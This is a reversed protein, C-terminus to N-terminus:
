PALLGAMYAGAAVMCFLTRVHNWRTWPVAYDSWVAEADKEEPTVDALANNLPVNGAVTVLFSGLLYALGGLIMSSSGSQGWLRFGQVLLVLSLAPAGFFVLMFSWHFVDINIRQMGRIGETAPIRGLAPMVFSSFAFFIGSMLASTLVGLVLLM